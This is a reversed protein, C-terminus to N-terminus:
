ESNDKGTSSVSKTTHVNRSLLMSSVTPHIKRIQGTNQASDLSLLKQSATTSNSVKGATSYLTASFISGVSSLEDTLIKTKNESESLKAKLEKNEQELEKITKAAQRATSILEPVTQIVNQVEISLNDQPRDQENQANNPATKDMNPINESTTKIRGKLDPLRIIAIGEKKHKITTQYSQYLGYAVALFVAGLALNKLLHPHAKQISESCDRVNQLVAYKGRELSGIVCERKRSSFSQSLTTRLHNSITHLM